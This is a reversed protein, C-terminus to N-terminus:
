LIETPLQMIASAMLVILTNAKKESMRKYSMPRHLDILNNNNTLVSQLDILNDNNTLPSQM